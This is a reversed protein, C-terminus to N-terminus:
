NQDWLTGGISWGPAATLASSTLTNPGNMLWTQVSGNSHVFIIDSKSDGNLDGSGRITWALDL